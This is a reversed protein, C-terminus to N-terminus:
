NTQSWLHVPPPWANSSPSSWFKRGKWRRQVFKCRAFNRRMRQHDEHRYRSRRLLHDEYAWSHHSTQSHYCKSPSHYWGQGPCTCSFRPSINSTRQPERQHFCFWRQRQHYSPSSGVRPTKWSCKKIAKRMLTNKGLLLVAKGRLSLRIKQMHNSGINDVTVMVASPYSELLNTFKKMYEVKKAKGEAKAKASM